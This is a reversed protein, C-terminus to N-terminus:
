KLLKIGIGSIKGGAFIIIMVFISWAILNFLNSIFEQPMVKGLEKRILEQVQEGEIEGIEEEQQYKFIQPVEKQGTFIKYSHWVSLIIM